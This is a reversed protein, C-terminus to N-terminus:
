PQAWAPVDHGDLLVVRTGKFDVSRAIWYQRGNITTRSAEVKISDGAKGILKQNDMYATPGLLVVEGEDNGPTKIKVARAPLVGNEFTVDTYEVMTGQILKASDREIGTIVAGRATWTNEAGNMGAATHPGAEFRPMPVNFAKYAREAHTGSNLASLDSPTESSALVMEKSADIHVIKDVTVRAVSWPVLRKTDAIGLFNQNPDISLFGIEGSNRDIIIDQVKGVNDGRCDIKMGPLHSLLLYRSYSTSYTRGDTEVTRLSWSPAGSTDRLRLKRDGTRFETAALLQDPDRPLALAEVVVKEGRMPAASTSNVFWTPGLAIKKTSGDAVEVSIITQEGFTSTRVREVKTITGEIRSSKAVDLNGAYPDSPSAADTALRQRLANTDDKKSERMGEWNESTYEPYQKLQEPTSALVFRDKGAPEWRFSAYPIAVARGGMGLITGTKVVIYEIRGSGRDLILESVNAIDENNNNIVKRDILWKSSRFDVSPALTASDRIAVSGTQAFATAASGAVMALMVATLVRANTRIKMALRKETAPHVPCLVSVNLSV